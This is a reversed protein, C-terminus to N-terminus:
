LGRLLDSLQKLFSVVVAPALLSYVDNGNDDKVVWPRQSVKIKREKKDWNLVHEPTIEYDDFYKEAESVSIHNRLLIKPVGYLSFSVRMLQEDNNLRERIPELGREDGEKPIMKAEGCSPNDCMLYPTGTKEDFGLNKTILLKTNRSTQCKPCVVRYKIREEIVSEPVDVLTFFDPDDRYNIVDRFYLSYSVQDMTRPLGDIFIAKGQFKNIRAKLLALIFETPLLKETSRSALSEVVEDFPVFGRYYDKLKVFDETRSFVEWNDTERVLDGVSIHAIRDEGFIEILLKSYTGKGSGKKGLFYSVFTNKELYKRISAIEYGSKAEFYSKRGEPSNLDFTKTLGKVKTGIIPFELGKM